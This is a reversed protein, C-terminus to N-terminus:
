YVILPLHDEMLNTKIRLIYNGSSYNDLQLEFIGNGVDGSGYENVLKGTMDYVNVEVYDLERRGFDLTVKEHAPNPYVNPVVRIYKSRFLSDASAGDHVVLMVGYNGYEPYTVEVQGSGSYHYPDGGLFTWEWSDPEGLSADSFYVRGGISVVTTDAKFNAALLNGYGFGDLMQIGTNDPDLWPKLRADASTGNFEWHSSFKGYFDPATPETCSAAGGTLTGVLNGAQNFIASGSSGGETVGHGSATEVWNVKWYNGDPNPTANGFTTSVLPATYTSIKKIDGQPHHIGVGSASANGSHDWGSFWPNYDDPVRNNLKLLRFDSGLSPGDPAQAILTCGTMTKAQHDVEPDECGPSEYNFYFLWQTFNATTANAGCHRATLFYPLSDQRTNNVLTGTCYYSGSGDTLLIKAVSRKQNQWNTGEPCNVNVECPGSQGKLDKEIDHYVYHVQEIIIVPLEAQTGEADYEIILESGKIMETAFPGGAPNNKSTFAGILESRDASYIFLEGGAPIYFDSYYLVLGLAGESAIGLRRISKRGIKTMSGDRIMDINVPIAEGVRLPVPESHPLSERALISNVDPKALEIRKFATKLEFGSPYGGTSIQSLGWIPLLVIMLFLWRKMM